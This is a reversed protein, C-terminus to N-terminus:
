LKKGVIFAIHTNIYIDNEIEEMGYASKFLSSANKHKNYIKSVTSANLANNNLWNNISMRVEKVNGQQIKFGAEELFSVLDSFMFTKREEKEKFISIFDEKLSYLPPIAEILLIKGGSRLVRFSEMIADLTDTLIHHLVYCLLVKTFSKDAFHLKRADGVVLEAGYCSGIKLMSESSDLSVLHKVKPIIFPSLRGTGAGVDLVLDQKNFCLGNELEKIFVEENFLDLNNYTSARDEWYKNIRLEKWISYGHLHDM